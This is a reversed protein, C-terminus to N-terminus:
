ATLRRRERWSLVILVSGVLLTWGNIVSTLRVTGSWVNGFLIEGLVGVIVWFLVLERVLRWGSPRRRGHECQALAAGVLVAARLNDPNDTYASKM